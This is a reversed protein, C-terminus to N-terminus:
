IIEGGKYFSWVSGAREPHRELFRHAALGMTHRLNMESVVIEGEKTRLMDVGMYGRYRPAVMERVWERVEDIRGRTVGTRSAIEEDPLLLNHRYVGSQAEFLSLGAFLVDNGEVCLEIAFDCDVDLRREAIVCGQQSVVKAIWAEDHVTMRGDIWRLGRGSGSWPAKLVIRKNRELFAKAEDVSDIRGAHGQLPLISSRHQLRRVGELYEDAPLLREDVGQKLLCRKTRLDWGWAEIRDIDVSPNQCRWAAYGDASVVPCEDGYIINMVGGGGSAFDLASQPPVYNGDGNALCM